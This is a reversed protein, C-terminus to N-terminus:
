VPSGMLIGAMWSMAWSAPIVNFAKPVAL